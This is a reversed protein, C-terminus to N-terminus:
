LKITTGSENSNFLRAWEARPRISVDVDAALKRLHGVTAEEKAVNKFPDWDFFRCSNQWTIKDIDSDSAGAATLEAHVKEAADPWFCDSHPYDCEWAIIDIGIENRVKLATPDTVYCALSHDRFVESPMKNGFDRRLWRQNTYHRDCRDLFFPIWGIGGESFAFKLDPYTRMAPGWLLDQAAIASIQTALVIMNDIPADPAMNLVGFGSGIHLCMVVGTESLAEFVPGWYELDHYSPLGELHPLEPMTVARCGKAAIRHIEKVMGEVNWTPLLGIPIFRDPYAAAWEDIHWDNYAAVMILTVPDQYHNLHRASFGTFTPFNMSAFIGNRNMDRVREHVDYVGPRMEAFTAPDMGWEEPPWSVVANLGMNGTVKGQYVWQEIGKDDVIVRPAQDQYQAPVHNKFMDPPEVVHDDISVLIMDEIQM